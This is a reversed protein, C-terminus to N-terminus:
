NGKKKVLYEMAMCTSDVRKGIQMLEIRLGVDGCNEVKDEFSCYDSELWEKDIRPFYEIMPGFVPDNGKLTMPRHLRDIYEYPQTTDVGVLFLLEDIKNKDDEIVAKKFSAESMLDYMSIVKTMM